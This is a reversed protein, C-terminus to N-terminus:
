EPMIWPVREEGQEMMALVIDDRLGAVQEIENQLEFFDDDDDDDDDQENHIDTDVNRQHNRNVHEDHRHDVDGANDNNRLRRRRLPAIHRQVAVFVRRDAFGANEVLLENRPDLFRRRGAIPQRREPPGDDGAAAAVPLGFADVAVDGGHDLEGVFDFGERLGALDLEHPQPNNNVTDDDNNNINDDHVTARDVSTPYSLSAAAAGRHQMLHRHAQRLWRLDAGRPVGVFDAILQKL